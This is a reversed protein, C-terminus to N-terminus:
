LAPGTEVKLGASKWQDPGKFYSTRFGQQALAEAVKKSRKGSACHVLVLKSKDLKKVFANWAPTGDTSLPLWQATPIVEHREEGERVDLLTAKKEDMIKKADLPSIEKANDATYNDLPKGAKKWGYVGDIMVSVNTYGLSIAREAADHSSSCMKNACYFVLPTKKDSPLETEAYKDYSSLAHAGHILGVHTRTGEDNADYVAVTKDHSLLAEFEAIHIPKFQEKAFCIVAFLISFILVANKFM